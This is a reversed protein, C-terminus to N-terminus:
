SMQELETHSLPMILKNRTTWHAAVCLDSMQELETHLLCM